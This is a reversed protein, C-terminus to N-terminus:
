PSDPEPRHLGASATTATSKAGSCEVARPRTALRSQTRDSALHAAIASADEGVPASGAAFNALGATRDLADLDGSLPRGHATGMDVRCGESRAEAEPNRESPDEGSTRGQMPNGARGATGLVVANRGHSLTKTTFEGTETDVMAITQQRAHLDCGVIKM